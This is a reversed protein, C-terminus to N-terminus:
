VANPRGGAAYDADLARRVVRGVERLDAGPWVQVNVTRAGGGTGAAASLNLEGPDLAGEVASRATRAYRDVGDAYGQMSFKGIDRFVRSPSSIGLLSKAKGVADGIPGTVASVLRSAMAQVGDIMGALLDRGASYLTRGTNGIRSKIREKLAGLWERLSEWRAVIGSSAGAILERGKTVLLTNFRGIAGLIRGPLGTFWSVLDGLKRRVTEMALQNGRALAQVAGIVKTKLWDWGKIFVGQIWTWLRSMAAKIKDWHKICLVIIAILAVIGLIIWTVPSLLMVANVIAMVVSFAYLAAVVIGIATALSEIISPHEKFWASIPELKALLVDFAAAIADLVPQLGNAIQEIFPALIEGIQRIRDIFGAIVAGATEFAAGLAQGDLLDGSFLGGLAAGVQTILAVFGAVVPLANRFMGPLKPGVRAAFQEVKAFFGSVLPAAARSIEKLYPAVSEFARGLSKAGAVLPGVLPEGIDKLLEKARKGLDSFASQVEKHMAAGALGVGALALPLTALVGAFLVGAAQGLAMASNLALLVSATILATRRFKSMTRDATDVARRFRSTDGVIAFQIRKGAM